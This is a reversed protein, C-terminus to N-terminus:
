FGGVASVGSCCDRKRFIAYSFDRWGNIPLETNSETLITSRGIPDCCRGKIKQTQPKPLLRQFKYQRKDMIIQPYYNCMGDDGFAAKQMGIAHTKALVRTTQLRASQENSMHATNNGTLPYMSGFSGAGWFIEQRPFGLSASVADASIAGIALLSGFPFAYPTLLGALEDDNHTPDAFSIWPVDIGRNDLCTDDLIAGIVYMAPNIYLNVQRFSEKTQRKLDGIAIDTTMGYADRNAGVNVRVGGLLPFCGPTSTVDTMLDFEWFSIPVGVKINNGCFCLPKKPGSPFDEAGNSFLSMSGFIKIPFACSWCVDTILNPFKGTCQAGAYSFNGTSLGILFVFCALIRKM